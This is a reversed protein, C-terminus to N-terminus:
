KEAVVIMRRSKLELAQEEENYGYVARFGAQRLWTALEPYTFMRVFFHMRKIQGDRVITRETYNRGTLVDYRMRDLMYNGDRETIVAHQYTRLIGDRNNREILLKGGTKLARYAETLVQRNEDDSFYGYATFWNVLRDFQETWPLTRMDGQIYTVEVGRTAADRRAYELFGPTIDLGTMHCGREALGNAIRGHGCALDLVNMGGQMDLLRWILDIERATRTPTLIDDYFYLYDDIAFVAETDFATNDESHINEM